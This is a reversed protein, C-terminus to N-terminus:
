FGLSADGDVLICLESGQFGESHIGLSYQASLCEVDIESALGVDM